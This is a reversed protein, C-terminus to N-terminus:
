GMFPGAMALAISAFIARPFVGVVRPTPSPTFYRCVSLPGSFFYRRSAVSPAGFQAPVHLHGAPEVGIPVLQQVYGQGPQEDHELQWGSSASPATAATSSAAALPKWVNTTPRAALEVKSIVSSRIATAPLSGRM